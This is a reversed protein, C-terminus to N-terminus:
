PEVRRNRLAVDGYLQVDPLWRRANTATGARVFLVGAPGRFDDAGAQVRLRVAVRRISLPDIADATIEFGVVNDVLPQEAGGDSLRVLRDAAGAVARLGYVATVLRCLVSGPPFARALPAQLLVADVIPEDISVLEAVHEALLVARDGSRFGCSSTAGACRSATELQLLTDGAMAGLRLRAQAAHAPVRNIRVARAPQADVAGDVDQLLRVPAVHVALALGPRAIGADAGAERLDAMLLDLASRAGPALDAGQHARDILDRLPALSMFLVGAILLVLASAILWELLVFGRASM